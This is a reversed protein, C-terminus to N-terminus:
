RWLLRREAQFVRGRADRAALSLDWGGAAVKAQARYGGTGDAQFTVTQVGADTAPHRLTGSVALGDLPKGSADLVRVTVEGPAGTEVTATWGLAAQAARASLVRNYALGDEYPTASTEGPHTRLALVTFVTDVGIVTGFFLVVAALVHRGTIRFERKGNM